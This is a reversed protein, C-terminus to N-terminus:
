MERVPRLRNGAVPDGHLLDTVRFWAPIKQAPMDPGLVAM